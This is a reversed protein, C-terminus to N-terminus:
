AEESKVCGANLDDPDDRGAKGMEPQRRKRELEQRVETSFGDTDSENAEGAHHEGGATESRLILVVDVDIALERREACGVDGSRDRLSERDAASVRTCRDVIRGTAASSNCPKTVAAM